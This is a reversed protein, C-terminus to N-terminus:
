KIMNVINNGLHTGVRDGITDVAGASITITVESMGAIVAQQIAAPLTGLGTVAASMESNTQSNKQVTQDVMSLAHEVNDTDTDYGYYKAFRRNSTDVEGTALGPGGGKTGYWEPIDFYAGGDSSDKNLEDLIKQKDLVEQMEDQTAGFYFRSIADELEQGSLGETIAELEKKSAEMRRNLEGETADYMAYAAGILPLKAILGGLMGSLTVSSAAATGAAGAAAEAAASSAGAGAAAGAGGLLGLTRLGDITKGLNLAIEAIKLASFGAGIAVLATVVNDKNDVVWNLLNVITEANDAVLQNKLREVEQEISKAADDVDGLKNVDEESLVHQEELMKEYEERGAKFLPVLERWSRGFMTQAASEKDFSDGMNMLADGIEWFLDDATQGNLNLGLTEELTKVGSDSSLAKAMRAKATLIADVDTDIFEAVNEMRQLTEVDIGWQDATTKLEDAWEASDMVSKALRKGFNIAARAGQELTRTLTSIGEAANQWAQGKSIKDVEENLGSVGEEAGEAGAEVANLDAEMNNLKTLAQYLKKEMDQFAKSAPDVGNEKMRELAAAANAVVSNQAEIQEKLLVVQNGMYMEKDGNNKLQAANLKLKETLLSVADSGEKMGRKFEAYEVGLKVNVGAM